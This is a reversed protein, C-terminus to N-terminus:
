SINLVKLLIIIPCIEFTCIYLFLYTKSFLHKTLVILIAKVIRMVYILALFLISLWVTLVSINQPIFALILLFPIIVFLMNFFTLFLIHTYHAVMEGFNFVFGLFRLLVIKLSILIFTVISLLGFLQMEKYLYINGLKKTVLYIYLGVTLCFLTYLVLFQWSSFVNRESNIKNIKKFNFFEYFIFLIESNYFYRIVSFVIILGLVTAIVWIQTQNKNVGTGYKIVSKKLIYNNSLLHRDTIIYRKLLSNVFQNPRDVDPAKIIQWTISDQIHTISDKIYLNRAITASDLYIVKNKIVFTDPKVIISDINQSYSNGLKGFLLVFLIHLRLRM